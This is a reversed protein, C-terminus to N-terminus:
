EAMIRVTVDNTPNATSNTLNSTVCVFSLGTGLAIGDTLSVTQRTQKPALIIIDPETTGITPNAHNYAKFFTASTNNSNDIDFIYCTAAGSLVNAEKVGNAQTDVVLKDVYPSLQTTVSTAM